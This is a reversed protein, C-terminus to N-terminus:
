YPSQILRIFASTLTGATLAAGLLVLAWAKDVKFRTMTTRRM